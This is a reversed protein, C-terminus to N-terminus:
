KNKQNKRQQSQVFVAEFLFIDCNKILRIKMYGSNQLGHLSNNRMNQLVTFHEYCFM